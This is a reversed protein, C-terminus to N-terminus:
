TQSQRIEVVRKIILDVTENITLNTTDIVWAEPVIQLPDTARKSDIEDRKQLDSMVEELTIDQGKIQYEAFRRQARVRPDATLFIKLQAHPLVKYTIDRGEMVVNQIAAIEQQKSVLVSRVEPQAAVISVARDIEPTRIAESVDEGDLLVTLRSVALTSMNRTEFLEIKSEAIAASLTAGDTFDLGRRNAILAATRYMAGTDVYLFDLKQALSRAATGKGSAVPGDIAIQFFVPPSSYTM